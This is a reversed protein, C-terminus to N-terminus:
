KAHRANINIAAVNVRVSLMSLGSSALVMGFVLVFQVTADFCSNRDSRGVTPGFNVRGAHRAAAAAVVHLMNTFEVCSDDVVPSVSVCLKLRM